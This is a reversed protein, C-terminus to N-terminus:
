TDVYVIGGNTANTNNFSVNEFRLENNDAISRM